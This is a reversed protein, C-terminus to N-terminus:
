QGFQCTSRPLQRRPDNEVVPPHDARVVDILRTRTQGCKGRSLFVGTEDGALAGGRHASQREVKGALARLLRTHPTFQGRTVRHEGVREVLHARREIRVQLSREPLDQEGQGAARLSRQDVLRTIRLRCQERPLHGEVPQHRPGPHTRIHQDPMRQPLQRRRVQGTHEIERVRRAQDRRPRPQHLRERGGARHHRQLRGLLFGEGQDGVMLVSHRERRDVPRTRRDNGTVTVPHLLKGLPPPLPAALGGSQTDRVGEVGRLQIRHQTVETRDRFRDGVMRRGDRHDRIHGAGQGARLQQGAGAVPGVVHAAGDAVGVAHVGQVGGGMELDARVGREGGQEADQARVRRGYRHVALVLGFGAGEVSGQGAQVDLAVGDVPARDVRGSGPCRMGVQGGIGELPLVVPQGGAGAGGVQGRGPEVGGFVGQETCRDGERGVVGEDGGGSQRQRAVCPEGFVPDHVDDRHGGGDEEVEREVGSCAGAARVDRLQDQFRGQDQRVRAGDVELRHDRRRVGCAATRDGEVGPRRAFGVRVPDAVGGADETARLCHGRRVVIEGGRPGRRARDREGDVVQVALERLATVLVSGQELSGAGDPPVAVVEVPVDFEGGVGVGGSEEDVRGQQVRGQVRQEGVALPVERQRERPFADCPVGGGPVRHADPQAGHALAREGHVDTIRVGSCKQQGGGPEGHTGDVGSLECRGSLIQPVPEEVQFPDGDRRGRTGERVAGCPGAQTVAVVQGLAYPQGGPGHPSAVEALQGFGNGIQQHGRDCRKGSVGDFPGARGRRGHEPQHLLPQTFRAEGGSTQDDEGPSAGEGGRVVGVAVRRLGGHQPQQAAHLVLVGSPQHQDVPLVRVDGQGVGHGRRDEAPFWLQRYATRPQECWPHGAGGVVGPQRQRRRGVPPQGQAARPADVVQRRCREGIGVFEGGTLYPDSQAGGPHIEPVDYEGQAHDGVVPREAAFAGTDHDLHGVVHRVEGRAVPHHAEEGAARPRAPDGVVAVERGDRGAPRVGLGGGGRHHEEGGVVREVVDGAQAGALGHQHVRRRASHSQGRQLEGLVPTGGDVGGGMRLLPVRQALAAYPIQRRGAGELELFPERLGGLSAPDVDYEVGEGALEDVRREPQQGPAALEDLDALGVPAVRVQDGLRMGADAVRGEVREIGTRLVDM